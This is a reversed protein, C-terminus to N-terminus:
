RAEKLSSAKTSPSPYAPTQTCARWCCLRGARRAKRSFRVSKKFGSMMPAWRELICTGLSPPRILVEIGQMRHFSRQPQSIEERNTPQEMLPATEQSPWGVRGLETCHSRWIRLPLFNTRNIKLDNKPTIIRYATTTKIDM